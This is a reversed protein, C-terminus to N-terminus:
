SARELSALAVTALADRAPGAPLPELASLAREAHEEALRRTAALAGTARVAAETLGLAAVWPVTLYRYLGSNYDGWSRFFLPLREGWLDRGTKLISYADYGKFAEDVFLGPPNRGLDVCRAFAAAALVALLVVWTRSLRM